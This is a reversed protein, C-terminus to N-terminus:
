WSYVYGFFVQLITDDRSQYIGVELRLASRISYNIESGLVGGIMYKKLDVINALGDDPDVNLGVDWKYFTRFRGTLNFYYKKGFFIRGLDKKLDFGYELATMNHSYDSFTVGIPHYTESEDWFTYQGIRFFLSKEATYIFEPAEPKYSPVPLSPSITYQDVSETFTSPVTTGRIESREVPAAHLLKGFVLTSFLIFIRIIM